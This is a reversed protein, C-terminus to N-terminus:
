PTPILDFCLLNSNGRVYLLGHSLVPAAWCPSDLMPLGNTGTLDGLHVGAVKEYKETSPKILELDGNEYLVVLHGDVSLVSAREHRRETWMVKADSLRVCRFDADPQNRGSCGYLYGDILVPTSWHARFSQTSRRDGDKWIEKLDDGDLELLTSGIEYTESILIQNGNVVPQAANVSELMPARWPYSFLEKGSAADWGLLGGRVLALGLDRDGFRRVTPSSYSALENGVKYRLKGTRKELALIASGAPQVMDLRGAPLNQAEEPSGGVMVMVLDGWVCPASAVGFFNQIVGFEKNLDRQWVTKGDALTVCSLKGAVGYLYILDNDVIPMCRPGNNYGYLDQYEVVDKWSWLEVGSEANLARLRESRGIRDFQLVRGKVVAPGGYGMSLPVQWVLKPHPQWLEPKVGTETSTGDGRPGLFSPWDEGVSRTWLSAVTENPVSKVEPDPAEGVPTKRTQCAVPTTFIWVCLLAIAFRHLIHPVM